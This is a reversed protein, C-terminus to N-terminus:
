PASRLALFRAFQKELAAGCAITLTLRGQPRTLRGARHILKQRISGLKEFSWLAARQISSKRSRPPSFRMQLERSLNHAFINALLYAKNGTRTRVPVHGMQGDTKLEGFIGEQSGRGDHFLATHKPGITKNTVVVKFDYGEVYPIFLDLQVPGKHRRKTRTRVFIFRFRRSWSKPKWRSEFFSRRHGLRKWRQRTECAEKLEAFREFPVSITFEVGARDLWSVIADSFFASDMRVEILIGPREQRIRQVCQQVFELAGKSDHVNGSRHLVDFVQGTQAVTCYLPYYSRDGKRKKNFGVATGEAFRRTSQVSGDFDLTVRALAERRIPDLVLDRNQERLRSVAREDMTKLGRSVTAASPLCKLGLVRRVLPDDKYLDVDRLDRFGILIQLLLQMFIRWHPFARAGCKLHSFCARLKEKLAIAEFLRSFIVLGSYSTLEESKGFRIEIEARSKFQTEAKSRKM